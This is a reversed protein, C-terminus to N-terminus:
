DEIGTVTHQGALDVLGEQGHRPQVMGAPIARATKAHEVVDADGNVM